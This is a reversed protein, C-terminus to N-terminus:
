RSSLPSCQRCGAPIVLLVFGFLLQFQKFPWLFLLSLPHSCTSRLLRAATGNGASLSHHGDLAMGLFSPLPHVRLASGLLLGPALRFVTLGSGTRRVMSGQFTFNVGFARWRPVSSRLADVKVSVLIYCAYGFAFM